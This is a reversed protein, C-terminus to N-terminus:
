PMNNLFFTLGSAPKSAASTCNANLTDGPEYKDKDTIITPKEKPLEVVVIRKSVLSTKFSPGDTTVECSLNGSLSFGVDRLVVQTANSVSLLKGTTIAYKVCRCEECFSSKHVRPVKAAFTAKWENEM